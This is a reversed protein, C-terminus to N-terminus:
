HKIKSNQTMLLFRKLYRLKVLSRIIILRMSRRLIIETMMKIKIGVQIMKFRHVIKLGIDKLVIMLDMM